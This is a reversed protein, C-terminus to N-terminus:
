KGAQPPRYVELGRIAFPGDGVPVLTLEHEGPPLGDVITVYNWNMMNEVPTEPKSWRIEDKFRPLIKWTFIVPKDLAPADGDMPKAWGPDLDERCIKIRGSKSVFDSEHSGEGDFGTESGYIKFKFKRGEESLHTFHIEWTEELMDKGLFYRMFTPTGKRSLNAAKMKPLTGYYLNLESPAKGDILVKASGNRSGLVADVRTGTFKLKLKSNKDSSEMWTPQGTGKNGEVWGDGSYQIENDIKDSLPLIAQYWRIQDAWYSRANFNMRFHREYMQAMLINGKESLHIGDCVLSKRGQQLRSRFDEMKNKIGYECWDRHCEVLECDYKQALHRLMMEESGPGPYKPNKEIESWNAGSWHATRIMIEACTYRRIGSLVREWDDYTGQYAHFVVLDPRSQLTGHYMVKMLRWVFWGGLSHNEMEIIAGPYRERLREVLLVTWEQATISQGYFVIRVPRRTQASDQLLSMTRTLRAGFLEQDPAPDLPPMQAILESWKKAPAQAPLPLEPTKADAPLQIKVDKLPTGKGSLMRGVFNGNGVYNDIRVFLDNSGKNLTLKIEEWDEIASRQGVFSHVVKGNLYIKTADDTGIIFSVEQEKESVLRCFLYAVANEIYGGKDDDFLPRRMLREWGPRAQQMNSFARLPATKWVFTGEPLKVEQGGVPKVAAEGGAPALLDKDMIPQWKEKDKADPIPIDGLIMWKTIEGSPGFPVETVPEAAFLNRSVLIMCAVTLGLMGWLREKRM